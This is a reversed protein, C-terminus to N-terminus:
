VRSILNKIFIMTISSSKVSSLPAVYRNLPEGGSIEISAVGDTQFKQIIHLVDDTSLNERQNLNDWEFCHACQLPCKKTIALILTNLGQRHDPNPVKGYLENLVLTKMAETELRPFVLQIFTHGAVRVAKTMRTIRKYAFHTHIQQRLARWADRPYPYAKFAIRAMDRLMKLELM